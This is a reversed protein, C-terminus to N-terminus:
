QPVLDLFLFTVIITLIFRNMAPQSATARTSTVEAQERASVVGV